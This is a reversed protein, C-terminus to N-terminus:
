KKEGGKAAEGGGKKRTAMLGIVVVVVAIVFILLVTLNGLFNLNMQITGTTIVSKGSSPLLFYTLEAGIVAGTIIGPILGLTRGQGDKPKPSRSSIIYGLAIIVVLSAITVVTLVNPHSRLLNAESISKGELFQYLLRSLYTGGSLNLFVVGVIIFLLSVTERQWGRRYGIIGFIIISLLFLADQVTFQWIM